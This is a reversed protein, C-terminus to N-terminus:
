LERLVTEMSVTADTATNRCDIDVMICAGNCGLEVWEFPLGDLRAVNKAANRTRGNCTINVERRMSDFTLTGYAPVYSVLLTACAFCDDFLSSRQESCCPVGQPNQFARIAMNYLPEAGANVEIVLVQEFSERGAPIPFCNRGSTLPLCGCDQRPSLTRPPKLIPGCNPDDDCDFSPEPCLTTPDCDTSVDFTFACPCDSFEVDTDGACDGIEFTIDCIDLPCGGLPESDYIRDEQGYIWPNGVGITFEVETVTSGSCGYSSCGTGHCSLVEVGSLLGADHMSRIFDTGRTMEDEGTRYYPVPNGGELVMLCETGPGAPCCTFYSLECGQCDNCVSGLLAQTLWKQGFEVACCTRGLLVGRVTITKGDFRTRTLVAGHGINQVLRRDVPKSVNIELVLLGAFDKSEPIAPDYWPAADLEPLSYGGLPPQDDICPLLDVLGPCGPCRVNLGSPAIGARVYSALREQNWLEVGCMRMYLDM